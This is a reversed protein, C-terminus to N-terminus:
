LKQRSVVPRLVAPEKPMLNKPTRSSSIDAPCTQKLTQVSPMNLTLNCNAFVAETVTPCGTNGPSEPAPSPTTALVPPVAAPPTNFTVPVCDIPVTTPLDALPVAPSHISM